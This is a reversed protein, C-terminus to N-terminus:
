LDAKRSGSKTGGKHTAGIFAASVSKEGWNISRHEIGQSHNGIFNDSLVQLM